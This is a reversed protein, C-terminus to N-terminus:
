SVRGRLVLLQRSQGLHKAHHAAPGAHLQAFQPFAVMQDAGAAVHPLLDAGFAELIEDSYTVQGMERVPNSRLSGAAIRPGAFQGLIVVVGVNEDPSYIDDDLHALGELEVTPTLSATVFTDDGLALSLDAFQSRVTANMWEALPRWAHVFVENSGLATVGSDGGVFTEIIAESSALDGPWGPFTSSDLAVAGHQQLAAPAIHSEAQIFDRKSARFAAATEPSIPPPTLVEVMPVEAMLALSRNM